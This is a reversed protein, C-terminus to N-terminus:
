KYVDISFLMRTDDNVLMWMLIKNENKKKRNLSPSISKRSYVEKEVAARTRVYCQCGENIRALLFYGM